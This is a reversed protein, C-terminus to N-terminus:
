DVKGAAAAGVVANAFVVGSALSALADHEEAVATTGSRTNDRLLSGNM